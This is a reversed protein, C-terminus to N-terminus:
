QRTDRQTERKRRKIETETRQENSEADEERVPKEGKTKEAGM